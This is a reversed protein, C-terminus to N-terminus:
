NGEVSEDSPKRPHASFDLWGSDSEVVNLLGFTLIQSFQALTRNMSGKCIFVSRAQLYGREHGLLEDEDRALFSLPVNEATLVAKIAEERSPLGVAVPDADDGLRDKVVKYTETVSDYSISHHQTRENACADLWSRRKRCLRVQFRLKAERGGELCETVEQEAGPARITVATHSSDVWVVQFYTSAMGFLAVLILARRRVVIGKSGQKGDGRNKEL